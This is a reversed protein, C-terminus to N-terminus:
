VDRVHLRHAHSKHVSKMYWSTSYRYTRVFQRRLVKAKTKNIRAHHSMSFLHLAVVFFIRAAVVNNFAIPSRLVKILLAPWRITDLSTRVHSTLYFNVIITVYM